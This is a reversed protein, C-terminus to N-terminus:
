PASGSQGSASRPANLFIASASAYHSAQMSADSEDVCATTLAIFSLTWADPASARRRSRKAFHSSLSARTAPSQKQRASRNPSHAAFRPRDALTTRAIIGAAAIREVMGKLMADEGGHLHAAGTVDLVIGDPPDAAVIPAYRQLAWPALRGLAEADMVILGPVLAQAKTVPMGVRLGVSLAAGDTALVVRRGGVKGILVLSAEVPPAAAGM